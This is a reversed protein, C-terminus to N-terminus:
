QRKDIPRLNRGNHSWPGVEKPTEAAVESSALRTVLVRAVAGSKVAVRWSSPVMTTVMDAARGFYYHSEQLM